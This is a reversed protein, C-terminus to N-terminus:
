AFMSASVKVLRCIQHFYWKDQGANECPFNIKFLVFVCLCNNETSSLSISVFIFSFLLLSYHHFLSSIMQFFSTHRSFLYDRIKLEIQKLFVKIIEPVFNHADIKVHNECRANYLSASPRFFLYFSIGFLFVSFWPFYFGHLIISYNIKNVNRLSETKKTRPPHDKIFLIYPCQFWICKLRHRFSFENADFWCFAYVLLLVSLVWMHSFSLILRRNIFYFSIHLSDSLCLSPSLFFIHFILSYCCRHIKM